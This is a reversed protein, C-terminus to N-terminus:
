EGLHLADRVLEVRRLLARGSGLRGKRRLRVIPLAEATLKGLHADDDAGRACSLLAFLAGCVLKTCLNQGQAVLDALKVLALVAQPRLKTRLLGLAELMDGINLGAHFAIPAPTGCFKLPLVSRHTTTGLAVQWDTAAFIFAFSVELSYM